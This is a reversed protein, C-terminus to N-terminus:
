GFPGVWTPSILANDDFIINVQNAGKNLCRDEDNLLKSVNVSYIHAMKPFKNLLFHVDM